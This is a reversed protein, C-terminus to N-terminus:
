PAHGQVAGSATTEAEDRAGEGQSLHMVQVSPLEEPPVGSTAEKEDAAVVEATKVADDDGTKDGDSRERDQTEATDEPKGVM